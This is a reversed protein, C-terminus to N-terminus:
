QGAIQNLLSQAEKGVSNDPNEDAVKKLMTAAQKRTAAKGTQLLRKANDLSKKSTLASKVAADAALEKQATKVESPLDYGKYRDAVQQYLAYADYKNGADATKKAEAVLADIKVQVAQKLREAAQKIDPQKATLGKKITTAAQADTGFEVAFWAQKLDAPIGKPDVNWKADKAAKTLTRAWDSFDGRDLKGDHTIVCLQLPNKGIEIKGVDCQAEFTRAPDLMIPWDLKNEQIYQQVTARNDSSNVGIIIIPQGDTATILELTKPWRARTPDKPDASCAFFCLVVGKGQLAELPIPASNVWQDPATSLEPAPGGIKSTGTAAPAAGATAPAQARAAEGALLLSFLAVAGVSM